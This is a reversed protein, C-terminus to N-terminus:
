KRVMKWGSKEMDYIIDAVMDEETKLDSLEKLFEEDVKMKNLKEKNEDLKDLDIKFPVNNFEAGLYTLVRGNIFFRRLASGRTFNIQKM